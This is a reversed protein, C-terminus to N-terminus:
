FQSSSYPYLQFSGGRQSSGDEYIYTLTGQVNQLRLDTIKATGVAVFEQGNLLVLPMNLYLMMGGSAPYTITGTVPQIVGPSNEIVGHISQGELIMKLSLTGIGAIAIQREYVAPLSASSSLKSDKLNLALLGFPQTGSITIYGATNVSNPLMQYIYRAQQNLQALDVNTQEQLVGQANYRNLQLSNAATSSIALASENGGTNDYAIYANMLDRSGAVGVQSIVAGADVFRFTLLGAISGKAKPDSAIESVIIWGAQTQAGGTLKYTVSSRAPLTFELIGPVSSGDITVTMPQGSQTIFLLSGSSASAGQAVLTLDCEWGGGVAFHPFRIEQTPITLTSLPPFPFVAASASLAVNLNDMALEQFNPDVANPHTARLMIKNFGDPDSFGVVSGVPLREAVGSSVVASGVFTKWELNANGNGWPYAGWIDGTSWGNGYLFELGYIRKGDNAQITVWDYNGPDAEYPFYFGGGLDAYSHDAANTLHFPNFPTGVTRITGRADDGYYSNGNTRVILGNTQYDSLPTERGAYDLDYFTTARDATLVASGQGLTQTTGACVPAVFLLCGAVVVAISFLRQYEM